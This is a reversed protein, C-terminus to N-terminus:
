KKRKDLYQETWKLADFYQWKKFDTEENVGRHNM